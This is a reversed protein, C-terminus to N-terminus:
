PLLQALPMGPELWRADIGLARAAEVNTLSDDIFLIEEPPLGIRRVAELYFEPSPKLMKMESSIFMDEYLGGIGAKEMLELCNPMGIPNNNSLLYLPYRGYVSRVAAATEPKIDLLIQRVCRDVDEPRSGPRSEKLVEARFEDASLLGGEFDGYIGKQHSPDLLESIRNYGLVEKFARIGRELDLGILVGGIDFVIAKTM